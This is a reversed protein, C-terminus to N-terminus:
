SVENRATGQNGPQPHSKFTAKLSPPTLLWADPARPFPPLTGMTSVATVMWVHKPGGGAQSGAWENCLIMSVTDKTFGLVVSAITAQTATEFSDM